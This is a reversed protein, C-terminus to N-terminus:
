GCASRYGPFQVWWLAFGGVAMATFFVFLVVILVARRRLMALVDAAGPPGGGAGMIGHASAPLTVREQVTTPFTSM